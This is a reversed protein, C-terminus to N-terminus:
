LERFFRPGTRVFGLKQYFRHADVRREASTLEIGSCRHQRAFDIASAVLKEGLGRSRHRASVVLATIRCVTSGNPFYPVLEGSILGIVGTQSQAVLLYSTDGHLSRRLREEVGAATSPYGLETLLSAIPKADVATARRLTITM